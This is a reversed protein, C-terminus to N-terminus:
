LIGLLFCRCSNGVLNFFFSSSYDYYRFDYNCEELKKAHAYTLRRLTDPDPASSNKSGDASADIRSGVTSKYKPPSNTNVYTYLFPILFILSVVIFNNKFYFM